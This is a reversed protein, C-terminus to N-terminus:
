LADCCSSKNGHPNVSNTTPSNGPQKSLNKLESAFDAFGARSLVSAVADPKALGRELWIVQLPVSGGWGNHMNGPLSSNGFPCEFANMADYFSGFVETKPIMFMHWKRCLADIMQVNVRYRYLKGHLPVPINLRHAQFRAAAFHHSGGSNHWYYRRKTWPYDAFLMQDLRLESHQMNELLHDETVPEVYNPCSILPFEDIDAIDKDLSKSASIGRIATIDCTFDPIIEKSILHEVEQVPMDHCSLHRDYGPKRYDLTYPGSYGSESFEMWTHWQIVSRMWFTDAPPNLPVPVLRGTTIAHELRAPYGLRHRIDERISGAVKRWISIEKEVSEESLAKNGQKESM